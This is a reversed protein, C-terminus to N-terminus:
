PSSQRAESPILSLIPAIRSQAARTVAQKIFSGDM